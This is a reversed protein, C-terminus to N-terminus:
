DVTDWDIENYDSKSNDTLKDKDSKKNLYNNSNNNQNLEQINDDSDENNLNIDSYALENDENYLNNDDIDLDDFTEYDNFKLKISNKNLNEYYEECYDDDYLNDFHRNTKKGLLDKDFGNLSNIINNSRQNYDHLSNNKSNNFDLIYNTKMRDHKTVKIIKTLNNGNNELTNNLNKDLENIDNLIVLLKIINNALIKNSEINYQKITENNYKNFIFSVSMTNPNYGEKTYFLLIPLLKYKRINDSRNYNFCDSLLNDPVYNTTLENKNFIEHLSNYLTGTNKTNYQKDSDILVWKNDNRKIISAYHFINNYTIDFFAVLVSTLDFNTGSNKISVKNQIKKIFTNLDETNLIYSNRIKNYNIFLGSCNVVLNDNFNEMNSINNKNDSNCIQLTSKNFKIKENFTEILKELVELPDSNSQIIDDIVHINKLNLDNYIIKNINQLKDLISNITDEVKTVFKINYKNNVNYPKQLNHRLSYIINTIREEYQMVKCKLSLLNCNLKYEDTDYNWLRSKLLANDYKDFYLMIDMPYITYNEKFYQIENLIRYRHKISSILDDNYGNLTKLSHILSIISRNLKDNKINIYGNNNIVTNVEKLDKNITRKINFQYNKRLNNDNRKLFQLGKKNKKIINTNNNYNNNTNVSKMNSSLSDDYFNFNNTNVSRINSFLSDDQFDLDSANVSYTILNSILLYIINKNKM